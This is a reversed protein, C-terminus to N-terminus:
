EWIGEHKAGRIILARVASSYNPEGNKKLFEKNIECFDKIIKDIVSNNEFIITEKDPMDDIETM